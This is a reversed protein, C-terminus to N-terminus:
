DGYCVTHNFGLEHSSTIGCNDNNTGLLSQSSALLGSPGKSSKPRSCCNLAHLKVVGRWGGVGMSNRVGEGHKLRAEAMELARLFPRCLVSKQRTLTHTLRPRLAAGPDRDLHFISLRGWIQFHVRSQCDIIPSVSRAATNVACGAQRCPPASCTNRRSGPGAVTGGGRRGTGRGGELWSTRRAGRGQEM